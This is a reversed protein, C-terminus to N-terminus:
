LVERFLLKRLVFSILLLALGAMIFERHIPDTHIELRVRQQVTEISDIDNFVAFLSGPSSASFFRGGTLAAIQQLLAEDYRSEIKGRIINGTDPDELEIPVEGRSGVGITYIRIGMEKAIKAASLPSIEGANNEGDTILVAVKQDATSHQLHVCAVAIGMGIATGDGLEMLQLAQLRDGLTQYDRTPPVRLAAESGFSVLGVTDSNRREIFDQIVNKATVFRNEPAFDQAAMSPSQDLVLLIDVGRNLYIRERQSVSPGALAVILSLIGAWYCLTASVILFRVGWHPHSFTEKRWITFSFPVYGGRRRWIHSLYVLTPLLAILILAIPSDFTIM